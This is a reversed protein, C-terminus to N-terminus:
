NSSNRASELMRHIEDFGNEQAITIPCNESPASERLDAGNNLLWQIYTGIGPHSGRKVAASLPSHGTTPDCDNIRNLGWAVFLEALDVYCEPSAIEARYGYNSHWTFDTAMHHLPNFDTDKQVKELDGHSKIEELQMLIIERYAPYDGDRNHSAIAVGITGLASDYDYRYSSHNMLRRVLKPHGYWRAAGAINNLANSNPHDHPSGDASRSHDVIEMVLDHFGDRVIACLPPQAGLDVMRAFLKVAAEADHGIQKAVPRSQLTDGDPLFRAYARRVVADPMGAERAQYFVREITSRDCNPYGNPTAGHNLLIEALPYNRHEMAFHLPMGLEPPDNPDSGPADAHAGQDLLLEALPAHNRQCARFLPLGNTFLDRKEVNRLDANVLEPETALLQRTTATDNAEIADALQDRLTQAIPEAGENQEDPM